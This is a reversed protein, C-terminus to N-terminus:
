GSAVPPVQKSGIFRTALILAAALLQLGIFIAFLLQYSGTRDYVEGALRMAIAGAIALIPVTLGRVTGFTATGFRDALLAYFVPMLAGTALGLLAACGLLPYYGTNTLLAANVASGLVFMGTMLAIRDVKDAFVSLLLKGAIAAGGTASVLSTAQLMTLGEALALPVISIGIAQIISTALATSLAILWFDGRRLVTGIKAPATNQEAAGDPLSPATGQGSEVDRVGPRERVVLSLLLILMLGGVGSLMLAARWGFGEVAFGILPALIFGGLSSGLISLAMARGRQAKFWRAVLLTMTITGTGILAAPLPVLLILASLIISNSLGLGVMSVAYLVAFSIMARKLSVKDLLRGILPALVSNGVNILILATNTDARSLQYEASVPIVFLAFASYTTGILVMYVLASAAVIYWGYYFSSPAGRDKM